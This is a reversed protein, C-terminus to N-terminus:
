GQSGIGTRGAFLRMEVIKAQRPASSAVPDLVGGVLMMQDLSDDSIAIANLDARIRERDRNQAKRERAYDVVIQRM